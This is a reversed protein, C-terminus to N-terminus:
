GVMRVEYGYQVDPGRNSSCNNNLDSNGAFVVRRSVIRLCGPRFGSGGEYILEQRPFYFAGDVTSASNGRITVSGTSARRDQYFLLGEYTGSSPATLNLTAGGEISLSAITAPNSHATASSLVFTVGTGTVVAQSLFNLSGGDIVYVGPAFNVTGEILMGRYCGPTLSATRNANIHRMPSCVSPVEPNPLEAYPDPQATSNPLYQTSGAFNSAPPVGGVAALPSATIVASGEAAIATPGTSNTAVGCGLNATAGGRFTVGSVATNELSVVCYRGTKILAATAEARILMDGRAFFSIFPVPRNATLIIRVADSDGAHSGATPANEVVPAGALDMGNNLDLARAVSPGPPKKQQVSFAGALAGSDATRQLQRKAVTVQLTDLGLAAAGILLPATAAVMILANGRRDKLLLKLHTRM